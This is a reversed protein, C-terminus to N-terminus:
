MVIYLATIWDVSIIFLLDSLNFYLLVMEVSTIM